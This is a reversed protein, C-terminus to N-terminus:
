RRRACDKGGGRRAEGHLLREARGVDLREARLEVAANLLGLLGCFLSGRFLGAGILQQWRADPQPTTKGGDAEGAAGAGGGNM